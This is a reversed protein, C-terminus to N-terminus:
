NELALDAKIHNTIVFNFAAIAIFEITLRANRVPCLLFLITGVASFVEDRSGLWVAYNNTHQIRKGKVAARTWVCELVTFITFM